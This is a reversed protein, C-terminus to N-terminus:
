NHILSMLLESDPLYKLGRDIYTKSKAKNGKNYYYTAMRFYTNEIHYRLQPNEVPLTCAEEFSVIFKEAELPKNNMVSEYAIRLNGIMKHDKLLGAVPLQKYRNELAQITDLTAGPHNIGYIKRNIFTEMMTNADAHNAKIKLANSVYYEVKPSNQFRYSMQMFYAFSIDEKLKEDHIGTSLRKYLSDCYQEKDNYQLFHNLVNNFIGPIVGSETEEFRSLQALYDIDSVNDFKCKEIHFLLATHLLSKVQLDPYFYYAKQSLELAERIQNNQMRTLAKNYYQLGPLDDFTGEKVANFLQEFIEDLSKNKYEEESILKSRRANDVFQQKFGGDFIAKELGPNTTEIVVSHAGPNAVLYVHNSSIMVKAPVKLQDYVMAYLMSASVCNYTGTRFMVPFYENTNYKKLFRNHVTSYALKVRNNGKKSEIKRATLESFISKYTLYLEEAEKDTMMEDISLFLNFTDSKQHVFQHFAQKEFASHFKLDSFLVLSDKVDQALLFRTIAVVIVITLGAKKM